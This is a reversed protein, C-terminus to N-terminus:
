EPPKPSRGNTIRELLQRVLATLDSIPGDIGRWWLLSLAALWFLLASMAASKIFDPARGGDWIAVALTSFITFIMARIHYDIERDVM